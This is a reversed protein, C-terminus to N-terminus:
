SWFRVFYDDFCNDALSQTGTVLVRSWRNTAAFQKGNESPFFLQWTKKWIEHSNRIELTVFSRAPFVKLGGHARSEKCLCPLELGCLIM